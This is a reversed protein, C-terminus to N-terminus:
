GRVAERGKAEARLHDLLERGSDDAYLVQHDAASRLSQLIEMALPWGNRVAEELEQRNTLILHLKQGPAMPFGSAPLFTAEFLDGEPNISEAGGIVEFLFIDHDDRPPGYSIALHLPEDDLQRHQETLRRIPEAFQPFRETTWTGAM